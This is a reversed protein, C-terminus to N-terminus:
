LSKWHEIDLLLMCALKINKRISQSSIQHIKKKQTLELKLNQISWGKLEQCIRFSCMNRRMWIAFMCSPEVNEEACFTSIKVRSYFIYLKYLIMQCIPFRQFLDGIHFSLHLFVGWNPRNNSQRTLAPHVATGLSPYKGISNLVKGAWM